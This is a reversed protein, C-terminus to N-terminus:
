WAIMTRVGYNIGKGALILGDSNQMHPKSLVNARTAGAMVIYRIPSHLNSPESRDSRVLLPRSRIPILGSRDPAVTYIQSPAAPVPQIIEGIGQCEM